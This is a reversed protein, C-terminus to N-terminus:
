YGLKHQQDIASLQELAQLRNQDNAQKYSMLDRFLVRHHTGVKRFPITGKKLQEVLFPRSVKLIDAAQQTTLEANVPILTVANGKGMEMLIDALLRFASMPIAIANEDQEVRVKLSKRQRGLLRSLRRSSEVALQSDAESPMVTEPFESLMTPM